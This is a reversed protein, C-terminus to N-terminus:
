LEFYKYLLILYKEQINWNKFYELGFNKIELYDKNPYPKDLNICHDSNYYILYKPNSSWFQLAYELCNM